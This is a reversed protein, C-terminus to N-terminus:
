KGLRTNIVIKGLQKGSKMYRHADVIEDLSFTKSDM